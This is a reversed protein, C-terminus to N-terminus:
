PGPKATRKDVSATPYHVIRTIDRKLAEMYALDLQQGKNVTTIDPNPNKLHRMSTENNNLVASNKKHRDDRKMQETKLNHIKFMKFSLDRSMQEGETRDTEITGPV